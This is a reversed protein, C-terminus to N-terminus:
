KIIEPLEYEGPRLWQTEYSGILVVQDEFIFKEMRSTVPEVYLLLAGVPINIILSTSSSSFVKILNDEAMILRKWAVFPFVAHYFKGEEFKVVKM